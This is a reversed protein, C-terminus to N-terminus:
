ICMGPLLQKSHHNFLTISFTNEKYRKFCIDAQTTQSTALHM